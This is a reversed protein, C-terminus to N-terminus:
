AKVEKQENPPLYLGCYSCHLYGTYKNTNLVKLKRLTKQKCNPCVEGLVPKPLKFIKVIKGNEQKENLHLYEIGHLKSTAYDLLQNHNIKKPTFIKNKILLKKLEEDPLIIFESLSKM